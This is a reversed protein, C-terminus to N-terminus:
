ADAPKRFEAWEDPMKDKKLMNCGPCSVVLNELSHSGRKSLPIVHDAHCEKGPFLQKCWHCDVFPKDRWSKIWASIEKLNGVTSKKKLARRKGVYNRVSEPHATAWKKAAFKVKEPNAARYEAAKGRREIRHVVDFKRTAAKLKEPNASQWTNVRVKVKERNAIYWKAMAASHEEFHEAYWKVRQEKTKERNALKYRSSQALIRERNAVYWAAHYTKRDKKKLEPM